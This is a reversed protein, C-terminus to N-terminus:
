AEGERRRRVLDRVDFLIGLLHLEPDQGFNFVPVEHELAVQIATATGGTLKGRDTWCVLFRSPSDLDRGLVQCVNRAHLRKAGETLGSWAPHIRAAIEFAREDEIVIGDERGEFGVWPLYIEKAGGGRDCGREFARDAGPAAGSRLVAGSTALRKAMVIM